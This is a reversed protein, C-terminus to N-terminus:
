SLTLYPHMEGGGGRGEAPPKPVAFPSALPSARITASCKEFLCCLMAFAISEMAVATSEMAFAISEMASAISEMASAIYEMAFAISEM